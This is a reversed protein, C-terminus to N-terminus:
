LTYANRQPRLGIMVTVRFIHFYGIKRSKESILRMRLCHTSPTEGEERRRPVLSIVKYVFYKQPPCFGSWVQRALVSTYVFCGVHHSMYKCDFKPIVQVITTIESRCTDPKEM